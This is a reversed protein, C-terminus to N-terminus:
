KLQLLLTLVFLNWVSSLSIPKKSHRYIREQVLPRWLQSVLALNALDKRRPHRLAKAWSRMRLGGTSSSTREGLLHDLIAEHIEVPLDEFHIGNPSTSITGGSSIVAGEMEVDETDDTSGDFSVVEGVPSDQFRQQQSQFHIGTSTSRNTKQYPITTLSRALSNVSVPRPPPSASNMLFPSTRPPSSGMGTMTTTSSLPSSDTAPSDMTQRDALPLASGLAYQPSGAFVTKGCLRIPLCQCSLLPCTRFLSAFLAAADSCAIQLSPRPFSPSPTSSPPLLSFRRPRGKQRTNQSDRQPQQGNVKRHKLCLFISVHIKGPIEPMLADDSLITEVCCINDRAVSTM